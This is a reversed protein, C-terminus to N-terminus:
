FTEALLREHNMTFLLRQEYLNAAVCVCHVYPVGCGQGARQSVHTHHCLFGIFNSNCAKYCTRANDDTFFLAHREAEYASTAPDM